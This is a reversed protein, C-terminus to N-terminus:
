KEIGNVLKVAFMGDTKSIPPFPAMAGREDLWSNPIDITEKDICYNDNLKLFADVVGWNEEQEISCTTYIIRGGPKLFQSMHNLIKSQIKVFEYIENLSRRWRIDPKKGIVGTGSCPADILIADAKPFDDKTADKIDLNINKFQTEYKELRAANIDSVYLNGKGNLVESIYTAKTGPAGCVDLITEGPLPKLYEVVMGAARDQVRILGTVILNRLGALNHTVKYFIESNDWKKIKINNENCFEELDEHSLQNTNRRIDVKPTENFYNALLIIKKHGFQKIWKEWLWSPYSHWKYLTSKDPNSSNDFGGAKRLIANTMKGQGTGLTKKAIEVYANVAAYAPIKNDMVVEYIGLRLINKLEPQLKRNPKNLSGKIWLDLRGRWRIVDNTVATLRQRDKGGINHKKCYNDRLSKLQAMEQDFQTLVKVANRRLPDM